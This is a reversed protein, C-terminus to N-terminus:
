GHGARLSAVTSLLLEGLFAYLQAIWASTATRLPRHGTRELGLFDARRRSGRADTRCGVCLM